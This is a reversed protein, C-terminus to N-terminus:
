PFFFSYSKQEAIKKNQSRKSSLLINQAIIHFFILVKIEQSVQSTTKRLVSVFILTPLSPELLVIHWLGIHFGNVCKIRSVFLFLFYFNPNILVVFL